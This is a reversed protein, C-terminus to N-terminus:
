DDDNNLLKSSGKINTYLQKLIRQKYTEIIARGKNIYVFSSSISLLKEYVSKQDNEEQFFKNDKTDSGPLDVLLIRKKLEDSFGFDNFCRITTRVIYFHKSENEGYRSNLSKM